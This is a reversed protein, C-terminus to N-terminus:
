KPLGPKSISAEFADREEDGKLSLLGEKLKLILLVYFPAKGERMKEKDGGDKRFGEVEVLDLALIEFLIM